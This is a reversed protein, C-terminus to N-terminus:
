SRVGEAISYNGARLAAITEDRTRPQRACWDLYARFSVDPDAREEDSLGDRGALAEEVARVLADHYGEFAVLDKLYKSRPDRDSAVARARELLEELAPRHGHEDLLALIELDYVFQNEDHHAGLLHRIIRERSSLLGSSDLPAIAQERLLFPFRLPRFALLRAGWTPRVSQSSTGITHSRFAIRHWMRAVGLFVQWATPVREIRGCARLDDLRAEIREVDVLALRAYLPLRELPDRARTEPAM